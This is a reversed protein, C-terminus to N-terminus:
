NGVGQITGNGALHYLTDGIKITGLDFYGSYGQGGSLGGYKPTINRFLVQFYPTIVPNSFGYHWGLDHGYLTQLGGHTNIYQLATKIINNYEFSLNLTDTVRSEKINVVVFDGTIQLSDFSSEGYVRTMCGTLRGPIYVTNMFTIDSLYSPIAENNIGENFANKWVTTDNRCPNTDPLVDYIINIFINLTRIKANPRMGDGDWSHYVTRPTQAPLFFPLFCLLFLLKKM